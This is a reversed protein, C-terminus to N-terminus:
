LYERKPLFIVPRLIGCIPGIYFKGHAKSEVRMKEEYYDDHATTLLSNRKLYFEGHANRVVRNNEEYYDGRVTTFLSVQDLDFKARADM